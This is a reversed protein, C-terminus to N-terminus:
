SIKKFQVGMLFMLIGAAVSANYSIDTRKQPLLIRVGAQLTQQSVGTEESGIILAAPKKFQITAANEGKGLTAIYLTYNKKKIEQLAFAISPAVFIKAHEALGASAKIAASTLPASNKSCLVIGDMGACYASRIIAGLNGVDQVGDLLVICPHKEPDFMAKEYVFPSVFMIIGQHQAGDTMNDLATRDVFNIPVYAPILAKIKAWSKIEHKTTYVASIKRKKAQLMELCAHAGYIFDTYKLPIQKTNKKNM